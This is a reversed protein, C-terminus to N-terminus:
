FYGCLWLLIGPVECCRTVQPSLCRAAYQTMDLRFFSGGNVTTNELCRAPVRDLMLGGVDQNDRSFLLLKTNLSSCPRPRDSTTILSETSHTYTTTYIM